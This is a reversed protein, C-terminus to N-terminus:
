LQFKSSLNIRLTELKNNLFQYCQSDNDWVLLKDEFVGSSSVEPYKNTELAVETGNSSYYSYTDFDVFYKTEPSKSDSLCMNERTNEEDNMSMKIQNEIEWSTTNVFCMEEGNYFILDNGWFCPKFQSEYDYEVPSFITDGVMNVVALYHTGVDNILSICLAGAEESYSIIEYEDYETHVKLKERTNMDLLWSEGDSSGYYCQLLYDEQYVGTLNYDFGTCAIYGDMVEEVSCTDINIFYIKNADVIYVCYVNSDSTKFYITTNPLDEDAYDIESDINVYENNKVNYWQIMRFNSSLESDDSLGMTYYGKGLYDRLHIEENNSKYFEGWKTSATFFACDSFDIETVKKETVDLVYLFTGSKEYTDIDKQLIVCGVDLPQSDVLDYEEAGFDYLTNGTSDIVVSNDIIAYGNIFEDVSECEKEFVVKGDEDICKWKEDDELKVWALGSSFPVADKIVEDSQNETEEDTDGVSFGSDKLSIKGSSGCASLFCMMMAAMAVSLIRKMKRKM